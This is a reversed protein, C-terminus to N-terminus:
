LNRLRRVAQRVVFVRILNWDPDCPFFFFGPRQPDYGLTSGVLVEGDTFTLEVKRGSIKADSPFTKKERYGADGEFDHVFFLGKLQELRVEIKEGPKGAELPQFHFAPKNPFFNQTTGKLVRGDAYRVILKTPEM